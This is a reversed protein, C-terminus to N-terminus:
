ISGISRTCVLCNAFGISDRPLARNPIRHGMVPEHRRYWHPFRLRNGPSWYRTCQDPVSTDENVVFGPDLEATIMLDGKVALVKVGMRSMLARKGDMDMEELEASVKRCYERIREGASAVNDERVQQDELASLREWLGALSESLEEIDDELLDVNVRGRRYLKLIRKEEQKVRQVEGRLREIEQGIDGGGTQSNLELDAIASSPDRVLSVVHSWVQDELWAGNIHNSGVCGKTGRVAGSTRSRCRYYWYKGVYGAGVVAASCWGCRVFGTMPYRRSTRGRYRGQSEKRRENVKRFLAEDILAPTYGTIKIWEEKPTRVQKGKGRGTRVTKKRGYYDVGIYSENSLMLRIVTVSWAVGTKSPIGETNLTKAIRFMSWGEVYLRFIRKVVKAEEENVVRKKALLDYDYGYPQSSAGVPMRGAHAVAMKGRLTRERIKAHEVRGVHGRVFSVLEGEPSSDSPEQVFHVEVGSDAFERLLVLLDVPGRALRDSTYVILAEIEEDTVMRRLKTLLPRDLMVGTWIERFMVGAEELYGLSVALAFCAARQTDLSTGNEQATGSVRVYVAYKGKKNSM